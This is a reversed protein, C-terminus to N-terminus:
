VVGSAGGRLVKARNIVIGVIAVLWVAYQVTWALRFSGFSYGGGAGIVMGMAQMVLLAALYGGTNVVAQATGLVDGPNFSRAFDFGVASAPGGVAIVVVLGALLWLPAPGPLALVVTWALANSAIVALVLHSRRHPYRGTFIGILVGSVVTTFVTTTLLMGSVESSVGHAVTLYPVGWMLAFVVISSQAGM